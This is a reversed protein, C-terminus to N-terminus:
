EELSIYSITSSTSIGGKPSSPNHTKSSSEFESYFSSWHEVSSANKFYQRHSNKAESFLTSETQNSHLLKPTSNEHINPLVSKFKITSFSDMASPIHSRRDIDIHDRERGFGSILRAM